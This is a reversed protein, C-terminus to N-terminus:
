VCLLVNWFRWLCCVLILIVKCLILHTLCSLNGSPVLLHSELALWIFGGHLVSHGISLVFWKGSVIIRLTSVFVNCDAHIRHRSTGPSELSILDEARNSPISCFSNTDYGCFFLVFLLSKFFCVKYIRELVQYLLM